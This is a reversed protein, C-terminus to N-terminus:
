QPSEGHEFRASLAAEIAPHGNVMWDCVIPAPFQATHYGCNTFFRGESLHYEKPDFPWYDSGCIYLDNLKGITGGNEYNIAWYGVEQPQGILLLCAFGSQKALTAAKLIELNSPLSPKVEAWMSVQPLWFDPLYPGHDGLDFGEPEYTWKIDANTLAVAWRAELRSRFRCGYARTEIAKM